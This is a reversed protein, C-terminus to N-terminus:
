IEPIFPVQIKKSFSSKENKFKINWEKIDLKVTIIDGKGFKFGQSTIIPLYPRNYATVSGNTSHFFYGYRSLDTILKTDKM